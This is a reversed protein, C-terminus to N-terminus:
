VKENLRKSAYYIENTVVYDNNRFFKKSQDNYDEILCCFIDIGKKRFYDESTNLLMKAIGICRKEPIVALRNVWGKRTDDTLMVVACIEEKEKAALMCFNSSKFQIRMAEISDRGEPRIPLGSKKWINFFEDYDKISLKVIEM